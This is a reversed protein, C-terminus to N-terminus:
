WIGEMMKKEKENKMKVDGRGKNGIKGEYVNIKVNEKKKKDEKGNLKEM